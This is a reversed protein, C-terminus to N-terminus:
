PAVDYAVRFGQNGSSSDAANHTRAAVRYRNCYSDHCLYSGGRMVRRAPIGHADGASWLDACMEWVNGAVNYLGFGNPTFADVPATGRYGDGVENRVPFRGQWINCRHVGGPTLEDGWPFRASELGGRAAYEWEVERPLRGGVWGAYAEADRWSLHVVSHKERGGLDSGPGAPLRWSAGEVAAWWPAEPVRRSAARLQPPLFGAFVFSWGFEEAESVYGTATVFAAFDASSVACVDVAFPAVDVRRLPGEGDGPNVDADESGMVFQGGPLHVRARQSGEDVGSPLLGDASSPMPEGSRQRPLGGRSPACCVDVRTQTTTAGGFGTTVQTDTM